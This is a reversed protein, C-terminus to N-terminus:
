STPPSYMMIGFVAQLKSDCACAAVHVSAPSVSFVDEKRIGVINCNVEVWCRMALGNDVM